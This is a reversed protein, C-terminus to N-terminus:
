NNYQYYVYNCDGESPDLYYKEGWSSVIYRGDSTVGTITMAHGTIDQVTNGDIDQLPGDFYNIVVYGDEALNNFNDVTVDNRQEITVDVGKEDLYSQARYMQEGSTAGYGTSDADPDYDRRAGDEDENYDEWSNVRDQGDVSNHNDTSCYFDVLLENYNLDGNKYMPFGFIREFEAERGAYVAFITNITAVYTCGESNLKQLFAKIDKDSMDPFYERVLEYLEKKESWFGWQSEPSGQDGGYDGSDDFVVSDIEDEDIPTGWNLWELIKSWWSDDRVYKGKLEKHNMNDLSVIRNETNEYLSVISQLTQGMDASHSSLVALNRKIVRLNRNVCCISGSLGAIVACVNEVETCANELIRAYESVKYGTNRLDKPKISFYNEM